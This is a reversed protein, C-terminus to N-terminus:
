FFSPPAVCAKLDDPIGKANEAADEATRQTFTKRRVHSRIPSYMFREFLSRVCRPAKGTGKGRSKKKEKRKEKSGPHPAASADMNDENEDAAGTKSHKNISQDANSRGRTRNACKSKPPSTPTAPGSGRTNSRLKRDAMSPTNSPNNRVPPPLPSATTTPFFSSLFSCVNVHCRM